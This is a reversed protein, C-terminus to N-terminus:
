LGDDFSSTTLENNILDDQTIIPPLGLELYGYDGDHIGWDYTTESTLGCVDEYTMMDIPNNDIDFSGNMDDNDNLLEHHNVGEDMISGMEDGFRDSVPSFIEDIFGHQEIPSYLDLTPLEISPLELDFPIPENDLMDLDFDAGISSDEELVAQMESDNDIFAKTQRMEEDPLNGDLYAAYKEISIHPLHKNM